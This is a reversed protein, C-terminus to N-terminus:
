HHSSNLRTSKRDLAEVYNALYGALGKARAPAAKIGHKANYEIEAFEQHRDLVAQPPKSPPRVGLIRPDKGLSVRKWDGAPDPKYKCVWEGRRKDPFPKSAM